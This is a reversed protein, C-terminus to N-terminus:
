TQPLQAGAATLARRANGGRPLQFETRGEKHICISVSKGPTSTQFQFLRTFDISINDLGKETPALLPVFALTCSRPPTAADSQLM